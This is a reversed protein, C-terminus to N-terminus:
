RGEKAAGVVITRLLASAADLAAEPIEHAGDFGVFRGELGADGLMQHLREAAEFALLPDGRGHSQVFRLGARGPALPRWVAEQLLTGSWIVLGAPAQPARLAVETAVMAGQSFGGLVIEDLPRGTEACVSFIAERAADLEAPAAGSLDRHSGSQMARELAAMDIPFWARGSWYPGLPVTIPANPFIWRTGPPADLVQSLPALDTMDAGYGHLIVAIPGEGVAAEGPGGGPGYVEIADLGGIRIRRPQMVATM